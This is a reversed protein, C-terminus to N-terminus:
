PPFKYEATNVYKYKYLRYRKEDVIECTGNAFAGKLCNCECAQRGKIRDATNQVQCAVEGFDNTGYTLMSAVEQCETSCSTLNYLKHPEQAVKFCAKKEEVLSWGEFQMM